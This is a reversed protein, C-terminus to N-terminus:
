QKGKCWEQFSMIPRPPLKAKEREFNLKEAENRYSAYAEMQKGRGYYWAGYGAGIAAVVCGQLSLTALVGALVFLRYVHKKM